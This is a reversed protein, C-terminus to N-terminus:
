GQIGDAMVVLRLGRVAKKIQGKGYESIWKGKCRHLYNNKPHTSKGMGSNLAFIVAIAQSLYM